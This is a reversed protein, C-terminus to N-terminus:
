KTCLLQPPPMECSCPRIKFNWSFHHSFHILIYNKTTTDAYLELTTSKLIRHHPPTYHTIHIFNYTITIESCINFCKRIPINIAMRFSYVSLFRLDSHQEHLCVPSRERVSKPRSAAQLRSARIESTTSFYFTAPDCLM